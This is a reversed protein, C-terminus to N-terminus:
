VMISAATGRALLTAEGVIPDEPKRRPASSAADDKLVEPDLGM